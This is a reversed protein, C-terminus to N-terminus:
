LLVRPTWVTPVCHDFDSDSAQSNRRGARQRQQEELLPGALAHQRDADPREFRLGDNHGQLADARRPRHGVVHEGLDNGREATVQAADLDGIQGVVGEKSAQRELRGPM